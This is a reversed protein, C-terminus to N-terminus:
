HLSKIKRVVGTTGNMEVLDGTSVWDTLSPLSVIAPLDMERAVIASHSLLSGREVLLASALPFLMVWGPDTHRAALIEGKRLKANTPDTVLRVRGRVIGSCCGTGVLTPGQSDTKPQSPVKINLASSNNPEGRTEFRDPPSEASRWSEFQAKREEIIEMYCPVTNTSNFATTVEELELYFVDRMEKISNEAVLRDGIGLMIRRVLGFVRTRELRLNERDRIHRRARKLVRKFVLRQFFSMSEYHAESNADTNCSSSSDPSSSQASITTISQLLLKPDDTIPISELKLEGLCRDGFKELYSNFADAFKTFEDLQAVKDTTSISPDGLLKQLASDNRLLEAMKRIRTVPELSTIGGTNRVLENALIGSNDKCWRKCLSRLVGFYIMAFFDNVIPADWQTLLKKETREYYESLAKGTMKRLPVPPPELAQELRHRFNLTRRGLTAHNWILGLLTGILNLTDRFRGGSFESEVSSVVEDPMAEGVGMMQEMFSRNIRFGPLMALVRYWNILNYYIRGRILGLMNKFTSNGKLIRSKPVRMLRCFQRYVHEYARLAFSFTLPTTVGSYSEVINSNDWIGLEGPEGPAHEDHEPLATIPRSQLIFLEGEKIAWEIDQPRGFHQEIRKATKVIMQVHSKTLVSEMGIPKHEFIKGHHSVKWTDADVEGSVLKDATGLVASIICTDRHGTIPDATFVVGAADPNIMIQVIVAPIDLPTKAGDGSVKRYATLHTSKASRQVADVKESIEESNVFLFSDFQGAFSHNSNDEEIGSSRVAVKENDPCLKHYANQINEEKDTIVFWPPVPFNALTLSLLNRAKGGIAREDSIQEPFLIM